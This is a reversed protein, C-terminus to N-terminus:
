GHADGAVGAAGRGADRAAADRLRSDPCRWTRRFAAEADAFADLRDMMLRVPNLFDDLEDTSVVIADIQDLREAARDLAEVCTTWEEALEAIHWGPMWERVDVIAQRLASTGLTIPAPEVRGVPLVGLLVRRGGELVDCCDLFAWWVPELDAPLVPRRKLLPMLVERRRASSPSPVYRGPSVPPRTQRAIAEEM